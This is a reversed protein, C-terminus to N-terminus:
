ACIYVGMEACALPYEVYCIKTHTRVYTCKCAYNHTHTYVLGAVIDVLHLKQKEQAKQM